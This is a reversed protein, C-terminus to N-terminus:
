GAKEGCSSYWAVNGYLLNGSVLIKVSNLCFLSLSISVLDM